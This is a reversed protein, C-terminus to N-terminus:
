SAWVQKRFGAYVGVGLLGLAPPALKWYGFDKPLLLSPPSGGGAVANRRRQRDVAASASGKAPANGVKEPQHEM